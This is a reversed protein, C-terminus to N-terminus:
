LLLQLATKALIAYRVSREVRQGVKLDAPRNVIKDTILDADVKAIGHYLTNFAYDSFM